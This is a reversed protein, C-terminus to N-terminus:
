YFTSVNNTNNYPRIFDVETVYKIQPCLRSVDIDNSSVKFKKSAIADRCIARSQEHEM